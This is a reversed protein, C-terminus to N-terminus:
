QNLNYFREKWNPARKVEGTEVNCLEIGYFDLMLKYSELLNMKATNNVCFAQLTSTLDSYM